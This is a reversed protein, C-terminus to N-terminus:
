LYIGHIFIKLNFNICLSVVSLPDILKKPIRKNNEGYLIIPMKRNLSPNCLREFDQKPRLSQSRSVHRLEVVGHSYGIM